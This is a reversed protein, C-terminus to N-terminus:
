ADRPRILDVSGLAQRTGDPLALILAGDESYDVAVGRVEAPGVWATVARGLLLSRRRVAALQAPWQTWVAPYHRDLARLVAIAVSERAVPAGTETALSTATDRITEPLERRTSNVNLGLGIVAFPPAGAPFVSELLLGALKKGGVHIDNPWKIRPELAPFLGELAECVALAATHTLRPWLEPPATPRLLVSLMVDQRVPAFWEAGRRGRGATQSDTLVVAGEPHGAEALARADDNTSGTEAHYVIEHGLRQGALSAAIRHHALPLATTTAMM